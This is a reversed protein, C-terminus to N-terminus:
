SAGREIWFVRQETAIGDMGRDHALAPVMPLVQFEYGLGLLLSGGAASDVSFTRDYYGKGLGLRHGATDFALGPAIVVDAEGPEAAGAVTSPELVGYRGVSLEDWDDVPFFALPAGNTARPLFVPKGLARLADFLPRTPLEGDLAAYLAINQAHLIEPLEILLAAVAEGARAAEDPAVRRRRVLLERRM